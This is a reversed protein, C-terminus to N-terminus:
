IEEREVPEPEPEEFDARTRDPEPEVHFKSAESSARAYEAERLSVFELSETTM